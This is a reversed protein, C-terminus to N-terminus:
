QHKKLKPSWCRCVASSFTRTCIKGCLKFCRRAARDTKLRTPRRRQPHTTRRWGLRSKEALSALSFSLPCPPLPDALTDSPFRHSHLFVSYLLPPPSRLSSPPNWPDETEEGPICSQSRRGCPLLLFASLNNKPLGLRRM